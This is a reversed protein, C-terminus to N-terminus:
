RVIEYLKYLAYLFIILSINVLYVGIESLIPVWNFIRSGATILNFILVLSLAVAFALTVNNLISGRLFLKGAVVSTKKFRILLKLCYFLMLISLTIAYIVRGIVIVDLM